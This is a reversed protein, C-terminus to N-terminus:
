FLINIFKEIDLFYSLVIIILIKVLEVPQFSYNGIIFWGKTGRISTGFILVSTLLLICFGYLAWWYSGLKRYDIFSIVFLIM